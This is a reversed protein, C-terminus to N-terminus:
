IDETETFAIGPFTHSHTSPSKSILVKLHPEINNNKKQPAM